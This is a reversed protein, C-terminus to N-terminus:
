AQEGTVILRSEETGRVQSVHLVRPIDPRVYKVIGVTWVRLRGRVGQVPEVLIHACRLWQWFQLAIVGYEGNQLVFVLLLVM